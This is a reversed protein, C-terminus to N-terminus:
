RGRVAFAPAEGIAPSEADIYRRCAVSRRLAERLVSEAAGIRGAAAARADSTRGKGGPNSGPKWNVGSPAAKGLESPSMARELEARGTRPPATTMYSDKSALDLLAFAQVVDRAVGDGDSYMVGLHFQASANGAEAAKRYWAAAVAPDRPLPKGKAYVDGLFLQARVHGVEAAKTIWDVAKKRKRKGGRGDHYLFGLEAQASAEGQRAAKRLRRRSQVDLPRGARPRFSAEPWAVSRRM